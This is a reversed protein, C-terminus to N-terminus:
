FLAILEITVLQHEVAILSLSGRKSHLHKANYFNVIQDSADTIAEAYNAYDKQRDREM